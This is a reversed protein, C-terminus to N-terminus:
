GAKEIYGLVLREEVTLTALRQAMDEAVLKYLTTSGSSFIKVRHTSLLGNLSVLLEGSSLGTGAELQAQTVPDTKSSLFAVLADTRDLVLAGPGPAPAAVM